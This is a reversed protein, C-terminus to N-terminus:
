DGNGRPVRPSAGALGAELHGRRLEHGDRASEDDGVLVLKAEDHGENREIGHQEGL